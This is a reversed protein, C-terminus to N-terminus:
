PPTFSAPSVLLAFPLSYHASQALHLAIPPISSALSFPNRLGAAGPPPLLGPPPLPRVLRHLRYRLLAGLSAAPTALPLSAIRSNLLSSQNSLGKTMGAPVFDGSPEWPRDSLGKTTGV